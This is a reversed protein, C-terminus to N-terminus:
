GGRDGEQTHRTGGAVFLPLFSRGNCCRRSSDLGTGFGSMVPPRQSRMREVRTEGFGKREEGFMTELSIEEEAFHHAFCSQSSIVELDVECRRGELGLAALRRRMGASAVCMEAGFRRQAGM